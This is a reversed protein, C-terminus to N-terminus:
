GGGSPAGPFEMAIATRNLAKALGANMKTLEKPSLGELVTGIKGDDGVTMVFPSYPVGYGNIIKLDPDALILYKSGYRKQWSKAAELSGNYVGVINPKGEYKGDMATVHPAARHNVPCGEKIFYLFVPAEKSLSALTHTKGDTGQASFGPAKDGPKLTGFIAIAKSAGAFVVAAGFAVGVLKLTNTRM